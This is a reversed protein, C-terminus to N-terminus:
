SFPLQDAIGPYDVTLEVDVEIPERLTGNVDLGLMDGPVDTHDVVFRYDDEPMTATHSVESDDVGSRSLEEEPEIGGRYRGEIAQTYREFEESTLVLVDFRDGGEGTVTYSMEPEAPGEDQINVRYSYYDGPSIRVGTETFNVPTRTVCGTLGAVTATGLMRM